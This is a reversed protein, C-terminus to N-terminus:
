KNETTKKQLNQWEQKYDIVLLIVHIITEWMHNHFYELVEEKTNYLETLRHDGMVIFWKEQLHIIKFPTNPIEEREILPKSNHIGEANNQTSLLEKQKSNTSESM